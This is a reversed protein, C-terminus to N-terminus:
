GGSAEDFRKASELLAKATEPSIYLFEAIKTLRDEVVNLRAEIVRLQLKMATLEADTAERMLRVQSLIERVNSATMWEIASSM